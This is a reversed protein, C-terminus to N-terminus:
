FTIKKMLLKEDIPIAKLINVIRESSRGDGYPNKMGRIKSKFECSIAQKIASIIHEMDHECNIVNAGQYRGEQRRGINVAPLEFTPAELLGSSSNGVICKAYKMLGAYDERPVNRYIHMLTNASDIIAANVLASGADSNPAIVITSIGIEKIAKLTLSVQDYASSHQETVSHQVFLIYEGTVGEYKGILSERTSIVGSIFEDLQPAGVNFVRFDQEGSKIL